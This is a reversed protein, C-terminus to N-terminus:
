RMFSRALVEALVKRRDLAESLTTKKRVVRVAYGRVVSLTPESEQRQTEGLSENPALGTRGSAKAFVQQALRDVGTAPM